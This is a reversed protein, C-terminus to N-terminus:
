QKVYEGGLLERSAIYKMINQSGEAGIVYSLLGLLSRHVPHNRTFSVAGFWRMVEQAIEVSVEPGWMKAM